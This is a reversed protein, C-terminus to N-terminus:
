IGWNSLTSSISNVAQFLKPHSHEFGEVSSRLEEVSHKLTADKERSSVSAKELATIETKLTAILRLMERQAAESMPEARIKAEIDSITEYIM